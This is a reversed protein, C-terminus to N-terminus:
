CSQTMDTEVKCRRWPYRKLIKELNSELEERATWGSIWCTVTYPCICQERWFYQFPLDLEKAKAIRALNPKSILFHILCHVLIEAKREQSRCTKFLKSCPVKAKFGGIKWIISYQFVHSFTPTRGARTGQEISQPGDIAVGTNVKPKLRPKRQSFQM